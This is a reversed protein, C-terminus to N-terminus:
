KVFATEKRKGEGSWSSSSSHWALSEADMISKGFFSKNFSHRNKYHSNFFSRKASVNEMNNQIWDPLGLDIATFLGFYNSCMSVAGSDSYCHKLM